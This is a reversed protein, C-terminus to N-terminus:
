LRAVFADLMSQQAEISQILAFQARCRDLNHGPRATKYYTDGDLHDTLFRLAMVYAMFAGSFVLHQKESPTLAGRMARTYGCALAKFLTADLAMAPLERTDEPATSAGTRVLDGFDYLALGPMVTDLDVVCLAEDTQADFLLNNLKADNHTVRRPMEGRAHAEALVNAYAARQRAFGIEGRVGDARNCVDKEVSREFAAYRRPADHFHPITDALPPGPMDSLDRQFAGFAHAAREAQAASRLVDHAVSGEVFVCVRWAEGQADRHLYASDRTPVLTLVRRHLDPTGRAELKARLHDTVRAINSTLNDVDPFVHPNIRQVLYRLGDAMRVLFTDNIHGDGHPQVGVVAGPLAFAEAVRAVEAAGPVTRAM